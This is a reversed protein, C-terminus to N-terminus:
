NCALDFDARDSQTALPSLVVLQQWGVLRDGSGGRHWATSVTRTGPGTFTVTEVPGSAGDSRVFRYSVTGSGQTM